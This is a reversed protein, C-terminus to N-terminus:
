IYLPYNFSQTSYLPAMSAAVTQIVITACARRQVQAVKTTGSLCYLTTTTHKNYTLQYTRQRKNYSISSQHLWPNSANCFKSGHGHCLKRVLQIMGSELRHAWVSQTDKSAAERGKWANCRQAVQCGSSVLPFDTFSLSKGHSASISKLLHAM